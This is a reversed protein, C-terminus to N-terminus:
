SGHAHSAAPSGARPSGRPPRVCLLMPLIRARSVQRRSQSGLEVRSNGANWWNCVTVPPALPRLQNEPRQEDPQGM